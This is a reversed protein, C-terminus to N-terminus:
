WKNLPCKESNWSAKVKLFCGCNLCRTSKADFQDCGKCIDLRSNYLEEPAQKMGDALHNVVSTGFNKALTFVDNM